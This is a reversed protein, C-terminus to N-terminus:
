SERTNGKKDIMKRISLSKDVELKYKAKLKVLDGSLSEMQRSIMEIMTQTNGVDACANSYSQLLDKDDM